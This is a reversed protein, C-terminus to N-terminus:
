KKPPNPQPSAAPAAPTPGAAPAPAAPPKSATAPAPTAAAAPKTAAAPASAPTASPKTAAAPAAAPAPSAATAAKVAGAPAPATSPVPKKVSSSIAADGADFISMWDTGLGAGGTGGAAAKAARKTAAAERRKSETQQWEKYDPFLEGLVRKNETLLGVYPFVECNHEKQIRQILDFPLMIPMALTVIDGFLDLPVLTHQFLLEKPLRNKAEDAIAYNGALLYPLNFHETVLKALDWDTIHGGGVITEVFSEGQTDSAYLADTIVESSVANRETLIEALRVATLKEIGKVEAADSL